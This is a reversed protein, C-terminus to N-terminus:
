GPPSAGRRYPRADRPCRESSGTALLQAARASGARGALRPAGYTADLWPLPRPESLRRARDPGRAGPVVASTRVGRRGPGDPRAHERERRDRPLRYAARPRRRGSRLDAIGRCHARGARRHHQDVGDPSPAHDRPDARVTRRDPRRVLRRAVRDVSRPESGRGGKPGVFPRRHPRDRSRPRAGGAAPPRGRAGPLRRRRRLRVAGAFPSRGRHPARPGRRRARRAREGRAGALLARGARPPLRGARGARHAGRAGRALRCVARAPRGPAGETVRRVCRRPDPPPPLPLRGRRSGPGARARDAAQSGAGALQPTVQPEAPVLAQVAGRHFIEGEVAACELVAREAEELRDLRAALLAQLTPPVVVEGDGAM